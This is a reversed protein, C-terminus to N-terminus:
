EFVAGLNSSCYKSTKCGFIAPSLKKYHQSLVYNSGPQRLIKQKKQFMSLHFNNFGRELNENLQVYLKQSM